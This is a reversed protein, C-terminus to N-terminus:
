HHNQCFVITLLLGHGPGCGMAWGLGVPPRHVLMHPRCVGKVWKSKLFDLLVLTHVCLIRKLFKVHTCKFFPKRQRGKFSVVDNGGYSEFSTNVFFRYAECMLLLFTCVGIDKPSLNTVWCEQVWIFNTFILSHV